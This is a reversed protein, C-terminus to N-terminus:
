KNERFPKENIIEWVGVLYAKPLQRILDCIYIIEKQDAPRDSRKKKKAYWQGQEKIETLDRTIRDVSKQIEQLSGEFEEQRGIIVLHNLFVLFEDVLEAMSPQDKMSGLLEVVKDRFSDLTHLNRKIEEEIRSLAAVQGMKSLANTLLSFKRHKKFRQVIIRMREASKHKTNDVNYVQGSKQSTVSPNRYLESSVSSYDRQLPAPTPWSSNSTFSTASTLNIPNLEAQDTRESKVSYTQSVLM